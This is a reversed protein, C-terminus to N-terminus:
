GMAVFLRVDSVTSFLWMTMNQGNTKAPIQMPEIKQLLRLSLIPRLHPTNPDFMPSNIKPISEAVEVESVVIMM